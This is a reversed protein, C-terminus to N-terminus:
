SLENAILKLTYTLYRKREVFHEVTATDGQDAAQEISLEVDALERQREQQMLEVDKRPM